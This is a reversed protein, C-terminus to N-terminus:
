REIYSVTAQMESTHVSLLRIQVIFWCSASNTGVKNFLWAEVHKLAMQPGGNPSLSHM